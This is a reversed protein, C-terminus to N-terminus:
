DEGIQVPTELDVEDDTDGALPSVRLALGFTATRERRLERDDTAAIWRLFKAQEDKPLRTLTGLVGADRLAGLVEHAVRLTDLLDPDEHARMLDDGDLGMMEITASGKLAILLDDDSVPEDRSPIASPGEASNM